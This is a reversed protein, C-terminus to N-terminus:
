WFQSNLRPEDPADIIVGEGTESDVVIYSNNGQSGCKIKLVRVESDPHLVM